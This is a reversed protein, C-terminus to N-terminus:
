NNENTLAKKLLEVREKSKPLQCLFIYKAIEKAKRKKFSFFYLPHFAKDSLLPQLSNRLNVYERKQNTAFFFSKISDDFYINTVKEPEVYEINFGNKDYSLKHLYINM